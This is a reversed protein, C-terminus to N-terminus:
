LRGLAAIIDAPEARHTYDGDVFRWAVRGDPAIIFTAPVPLCWAANGHRLPMNIGSADLRARYLKPIKFVVGAALGVGFDVDVLLEYGSVHNQKTTLALGGTEPTLALLSAGQAQIQPMAAALADLTARCWPCWEGRFFGLVVPGKALQESLSVLRGEASPLMFDPFVAGQALVNSLFGARNLKVLIEQYAADWAANQRRSERLADLSPQLYEITQEELGLDPSKIAGSRPIIL